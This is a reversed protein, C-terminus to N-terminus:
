RLKKCFFIEDVKEETLNLIESITQIENRYFDSKGRVKRYLTLPNIDMAIALDKLTMDNRVLEIILAKRNFM